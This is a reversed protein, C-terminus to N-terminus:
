DARLTSMPDLRAARLAPISSAMLCAIVVVLAGAVYAVPDFAQLMMVRWGFIRAAGLALLVGIPLGVAALRLSQGMVLSVVTSVNAGLAIRIGIEKARQAVLYSLVGYVGSITLLLALVG